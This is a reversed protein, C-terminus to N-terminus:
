AWVGFAVGIGTGAPTRYLPQYELWRREMGEIAGAVVIWNRIESSGSNLAAAPLTRLLASRGAEFGDIVCRDLDEDVVFHSLGGSAMVAVRLDQKSSEICRRLVRGIDHCRSPRPANPPYYTNILLPIVPIKKAGFIRTEVFGIGHGFGSDLPKEIQAAAAVDIDHDIFGEILERAFEPMAAFNHPEDLAYTRLLGPMFSPVPDPVPKRPRTIITEGYYLSVAPTNMRDFLETEDDTVIVVVDPDATAIESGLRDLARQCIDSKKTFTGVDTIDAYRGNRLHNLEEYSLWRGDSMNLRRSTYDRVIYENWKRPEIALLPTHSTGLGLVIRAM